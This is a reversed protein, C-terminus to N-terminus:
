TSVVKVNTVAFAHKIGEDLTTKTVVGSLDIGLHVLTQSISARIGTIFCETGMLRAAAVTSLLHKAVLTDMIPIGSIDLIAIKAQADEISALLTETLLQARKSDFVGILPVLIIRNWIRVVPVSVEMFAKQQESLREMTQKQLTIDRAAAFLGIIDGKDDRYVSANYLVSIVQGKSHRIELPYDRVSGENFAQQYGARAKDPETFYTCFDTGILKERSCGTALETAKNVDTITGDPGITVLPDLSAEILSRNYSEALKKETIDRAAAFVGLVNGQIDRYVSANYLVDILKGDKHRITLPYDTVFGKEFVQQYGARAKDPETFYSCFDTGILKERPHGTALETAKNVDTITGDPGITVLPDLSAEILSRNYTSALKLKEEVDKQLTIDRGISSAGVIKGHADRMPSITMSMPIRRGDKSIRITEHHAVQAGERVKSLIGKMEDGRDDPMLMSINRGKVEEATYGYIQEAGRNWSVIMGELTKGVIADDSSEVIAALELNKQEALTRQALECQLRENIQRLEASREKVREELEERSVRLEEEMRKQEAAARLAQRQWDDEQRKM